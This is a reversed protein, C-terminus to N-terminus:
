KALQQSSHELPFSSSFFKSIVQTIWGTAKSEQGQHGM